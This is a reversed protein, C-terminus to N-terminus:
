DDMQAATTEPRRYCPRVELCGRAILTFATLMALAAALKDASSDHTMGHLTDAIALAGGTLIAAAARVNARRHWPRRTNPAHPTPTHPTTM